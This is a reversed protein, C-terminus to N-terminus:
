CITGQKKCSYSTLNEVLVFLEDQREDPYFVNIDGTQPDKTTMLALGDYAELIFKFFGIKAPAIQVSLVSLNM